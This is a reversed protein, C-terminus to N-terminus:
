CSSSLIKSVLNVSGFCLNVQATVSRIVDERDAEFQTRYEAILRGNDDLENLRRSTDDLLTAIFERQRAAVEDLQDTVRHGSHLEGDRRCEGCVVSGCDVCLSGADRDPHRRCPTVLAASIESQHRGTQLDSISVVRHRLRLSTHADHCPGCLDHRCDLCRWSATPRREDASATTCNGCTRAAVAQSSVLEQMAAVFACASGDNEELSVSSLEDCVPCPFGDVLDVDLEVDSEPAPEAVTLPPKEDEPLPAEMEYLGSTTKPATTGPDDLDDISMYFHSTRQSSTSLPRASASKFEEYVPILQDLTALKSSADGDVDDVSGYIYSFRSIRSQQEPREVPAKPSNVSAQGCRSGQDGIALEDASRSATLKRHRPETTSASEDSNKIRRILRPPTSLLDNLKWRRVNKLSGVGGSQQRKKGRRHRMDDAAEDLDSNEYIGDSHPLESPQVYTSTSASSM